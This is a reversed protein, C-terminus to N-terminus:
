RKLLLEKEEKEALKAKTERLEREKEKAEDLKTGVVVNKKM